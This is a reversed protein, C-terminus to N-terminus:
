EMVKMNLTYGDTTIGTNFRDRQRREVLHRFLKDDNKALDSYTDIDDIIDWLDKICKVLKKENYESRQAAGAGWARLWETAESIIKNQEENTLLGFDHRYSMCVSNIMEDTVGSSTLRVGNSKETNVGCEDCVYFRGDEIMMEAGCGSCIMGKIYAM